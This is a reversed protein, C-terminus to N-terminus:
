ITSDVYIIEALIVNLTSYKVQSQLLANKEM